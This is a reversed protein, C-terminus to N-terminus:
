LGPPVGEGSSFKALFIMGLQFFVRVFDRGCQSIGYIEDGMSFSILFVAKGVPKKSSFVLSKKDAKSNQYFIKEQISINLRSM